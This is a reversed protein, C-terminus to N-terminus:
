YNNGQSRQDVRGMAAGNYADGSNNEEMRLGGVMQGNGRECPPTKLCILIVAILMM